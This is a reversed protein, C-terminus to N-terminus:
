VVGHVMWVVFAGLMLRLGWRHWRDENVVPRGRLKTLGIFALRGGDLAPVPFINTLALVINMFFGLAIADIGYIPAAHVIQHTAVVPGATLVHQGGKTALRQGVDLAVTRVLQVGLYWGSGPLKWWPIRMYNAMMVMALVWASVLNMLIGSAAIAAQMGPTKQEVAARDLACYAGFPWLKLTWHQGTRSTHRVLVPGMGWGVDLVPVRAWLAAVAHGIEHIMTSAYIWVVILLLNTM